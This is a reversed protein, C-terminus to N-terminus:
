ARRDGDIRSEHLQLRQEAIRAEAAGAAPQEQPPRSPEVEVGDPLVRLALRQPAHVPRRRRPTALQHDLLELVRRAVGDDYQKVAVGCAGTTVRRVRAEVLRYARGAGDELHVRATAALRGQECGARLARLDSGAVEAGDESDKRGRLRIRPRRKGPPQGVLMRSCRLRAFEDHHGGIELRDRDIRQHGDRRPAEERDHPDVRRAVHAAWARRM